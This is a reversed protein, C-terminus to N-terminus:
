LYEPVFDVLGIDDFPIVEFGDLEYLVRSNEDLLLNGNELDKFGIMSRDSFFVNDRVTSFVEYPYSLSYKISHEALVNNKVVSYAPNGSMDPDTIENRASEKMLALIPFKNKWLMSNYPRLMLERWMGGGYPALGSGWNGSAARADYQILYRGCNVIINNIVKNDRGGGILFGNGRVDMIINGYATQGALADDWYIASPDGFGERGIDHIYNYRLVSSDWDWRRGEYIAGADGTELCVDYIENYEIIVDAANYEIAEHPANYIRNHGIYCGTASCVVGPQYTRVVDGFDHICNNYIINRSPVLLKDDGGNVVIGCGGVDYIHSRSVTNNYGKVSVATGHLGTIINNDLTVNSASVTIGKFAGKFAFGSFSVYDATISVLEKQNVSIEILTDAGFDDEPYYYLKGSARDIYYEGAADLEEPINAFFYRAGNNYGYYSDDEMTFRKAVKDIELLLLRSFSYDNGFYGLVFEDERLTWNDLAGNEYAGSTGELGSFTLFEGKNPYQAVTQRKHNVLLETAYLDEDFLKGYDTVGLAKLDCVLIHSMAEESVFLSKDAASIPSFDTSSLTKAGSIIVSEGDAATYKIPYEATGSDENTLEFTNELYYTGGAVVVTAGGSSLGSNARINRIADRAAELTAFPADSSGDNRDSGDTSVYFVVDTDAKFRIQIASLLSFVIAIALTVSLFINRKM